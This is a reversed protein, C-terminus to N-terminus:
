AMKLDYGNAEIHDEMDEKNINKRKLVETIEKEIRAKKFLLEMVEERDKDSHLVSLNFLIDMSEDILPSGYFRGSVSYGFVPKLGLKELMTKATYHTIIREVDTLTPDDFVFLEYKEGKFDSLNGAGAWDFEMYSNYLSGRIM